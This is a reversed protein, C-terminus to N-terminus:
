SSHKAQEHIVRINLGLTRSSPALGALVQIGGKKGQIPGACQVAYGLLCPQQLPFVGKLPPYAEFHTPSSKNLPNSCGQLAVVNLMIVNLGVVRLMGVSLVFPENTVNLMIVSLM